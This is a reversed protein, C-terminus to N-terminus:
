EGEHQELYKQSIKFVTKTYKTWVTFITWTQFLVLTLLHHCVIWIQHVIGKFLTIDQILCTSSSPSNLLVQGTESLWPSFYSPFTPSFSPDTTPRLWIFHSPSLLFFSCCSPLGAPLSIVSSGGRKKREREGERREQGEYGPRKARARERLHGQGWRM